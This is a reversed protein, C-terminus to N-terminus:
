LHFQPAPAAGRLYDIDTEFLSESSGDAQILLGEMAPSRGHIVFLRGGPRLWSAFQSPVQDVAGTVVIVDFRRETQWALADAVEVRANNGLGTRDLNARASAALEPDIELSLVDRALAAVCATLFGSGTGIELVEDGPQLDLAQLTRGEIVPKMMKQGQGLPLEVDAYALKRHAAPVFEERPLRALVDLVKIDLVDWPRIQQEVMLERAHPFDFTM